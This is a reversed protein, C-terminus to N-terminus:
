RLEPTRSSTPTKLVTFIVVAEVKILVCPLYTASCASDYKKAISCFNQGVTIFGLHEIVFCFVLIEVGLDDFALLLRIVIM